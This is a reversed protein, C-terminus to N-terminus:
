YMQRTIPPLLYLQYWYYDNFNYKYVGASERSGGCLEPSLVLKKGCTSGNPEQVKGTAEM